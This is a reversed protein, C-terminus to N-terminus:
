VEASTHILVQSMKRSLADILAQASAGPEPILKWAGNIVIIPAQEVQFRGAMARARRLGQESAQSHWAAQFEIANIGVSKFIAAIKSKLSGSEDGSSSNAPKQRQRHALNFLKPLVSGTVGLTRAVIFARALALTDHKTIVERDLVVLGSVDKAWTSLHNFLTRSDRSFDFFVLVSVERPSVQSPQAPVIRRVEIAASGGAAQAATGVFLLAALGVVAPLLHQVRCKM